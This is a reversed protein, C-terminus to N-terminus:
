APRRDIWLPSDALPYEDCNADGPPGGRDVVLFDHVSDLAILPHHWVGRAYNVGQGPAPLFCRIQTLDPVPGAPAVVVFYPQGSLPVFAQSGHPHRELLGLRMPLARPQARFISILARGGATAVDVHALDHYREAFGENISFHRAADSAGIVDGFPRFAEASLPEVALVRQGAALPNPSPPSSSM